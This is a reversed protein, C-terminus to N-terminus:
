SKHDLNHIAIRQQNLDTRTVVRQFHAMDAYCLKKGYTTEFIAPAKIRNMFANARKQEASLSQKARNLDTTEKLLPYMFSDVAGASHEFVQVNGSELDLVVGYVHESCPSFSWHDWSPTIGHLALVEKLPDGISVGGMFWIGGSLTAEIEGEEPIGIQDIVQKVAENILASINHDFHIVAGKQNAPNYLTAIVCSQANLSYLYNDDANSNYTACVGEGQQAGRAYIPDERDPFADCLHRISGLDIKNGAISYLLEKPRQKTSVLGEM